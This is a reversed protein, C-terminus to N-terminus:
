HMHVTIKATGDDNRGCFFSYYVKTVPSRYIIQMCANALFFQYQGIQNLSPKDMIKLQKILNYENEPLNNKAYSLMWNCYPKLKLNLVRSFMIDYLGECFLKHLNYEIEILDDPNKEYLKFKNINETFTLKHTFDMSLSECHLNGIM